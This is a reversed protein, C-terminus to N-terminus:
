ERGNLSILLSDNDQEYFSIKMKISAVETPNRLGVLQKQLMEIAADNKRILSELYEKDNMKIAKNFNPTNKKTIVTIKTRVGGAIASLTQM